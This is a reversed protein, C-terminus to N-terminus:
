IILSFIKGRKVAAKITKHELIRFSRSSYYSLLYGKFYKFCRVFMPLVSLTSAMTIQDIHILEKM